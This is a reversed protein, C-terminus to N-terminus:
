KIGDLQVKIGLAELRVRDEPLIIRAPYRGHIQGMENVQKILDQEVLARDTCQFWATGGQIPRLTVVTGPPIALVFRVFPDDLWFQGTTWCTEGRAGLTVEWTSGDPRVFFHAAEQGHRVQREDFPAPVVAPPPFAPPCSPVPQVTPVVLPQPVPTCFVSTPTPSPIATPTPFPTITPFPTPTSIQTPTPAVVAIEKRCGQIIESIIWLIILAAIVGLVILGVKVLFPQEEWGRRQWWVERVERVEKVEVAKEPEEKPKRARRPKKPPKEPETGVPEVPRPEM